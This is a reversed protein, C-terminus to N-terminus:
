AASVLFVGRGSAVLTEEADFVKADCTAITRGLKVIQAEVRLRGESAARHFDVRLDITQAPHGIKTAVAFSGATDVLSALVGGHVYRRDPNSIFEERWPAIIEVRGPDSSAFELKMWNAFHNRSLREQLRESSIIRPPNTM